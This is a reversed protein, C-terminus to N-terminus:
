SAQQCIAGVTSDLGHHDCTQFSTIGILLTTRFPIAAPTAKPSRASMGAIAASLWPPLTTTVRGPTTKWLSPASSMRPCETSLVTSAASSDPYVGQGTQKAFSIAAARE